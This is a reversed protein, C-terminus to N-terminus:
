KHLPEDLINKTNLLSLSIFFFNNKQLPFHLYDCYIKIVLINKFFLLLIYYCFNSYKKKLKILIEM